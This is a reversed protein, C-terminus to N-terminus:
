LDTMDVDDDFFRFKAQDIVKGILHLYVESPLYDHHEITYSTNFAVLRDHRRLPPLRTGLGLTM